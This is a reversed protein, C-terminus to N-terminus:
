GTSRTTHRGAASYGQVLLVHRVPEEPALDVADKFAAVAEDYRRLQQLALGESGLL